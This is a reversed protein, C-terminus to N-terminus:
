FKLLGFAQLILIVMVVEIVFKVMFVYIPKRSFKENNKTVEDTITKPGVVWGILIASLLTIIPM